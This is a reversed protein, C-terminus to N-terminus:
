KRYKIWDFPKRYNLYGPNDQNMYAEREFPISLYASVDKKFLGRLWFLVYLVYFPIVWLERQQVLHIREHTHIEEDDRLEPVIFAFPWLAIGGNGGSMWRALKTHVIM